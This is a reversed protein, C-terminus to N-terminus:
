GGSVASTVGPRVRIAELQAHILGARWDKPRWVGVDTGAREFAALWLRQDPTPYKGDDKLERVMVRTGALTLDPYGKGDGQVATVWRGAQTMGARFHATRINYRQCLELVDRLLAEEPKFAKM